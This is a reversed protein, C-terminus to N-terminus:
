EYCIWLRFHFLLAFELILAFLRFIGPLKNVKQGKKMAKMLPKIKKFPYDHAWMLDWDSTLNYSVREYGLRDLVNYVHKLYGSDLNKGYPTFRLNGKVQSSCKQNKGPHALDIFEQQLVSLKHLNFTTLILGLGLVLLSGALAPNIGRLGMVRRMKKWIGNAFTLNEESCSGILM